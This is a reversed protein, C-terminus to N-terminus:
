GKVNLDDDLQSFAKCGLRYGLERYAEFQSEDFFQDSTAQYPFEPHATKYGYIDAPLDDTMTPKILIIKGVSADSYYISGIAYSRKATKFETQMPGANGTGTFMDKLDYNPDDFLIATGFDIRVKEIMNALNESIALPNPAADCVIAIKVKRRIMEYLALNEFHGGDTLELFPSKEHYGFGLLDQFGPNFFTPTWGKKAARHNPNPAWYGTRLNFLTMIFSIIPITTTGGGSSGINPNVAAASIAVATALHLKGKLFEETKQWGTTLSGCYLPSFMFSDGFRSKVVRSPSNKLIVTGCCVHYPGATQEDCM